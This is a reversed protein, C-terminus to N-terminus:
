VGDMVKWFEILEKSIWLRSEYPFGSTVKQAIRSVSLCVCTLANGGIQPPYHTRGIVFNSISTHLM